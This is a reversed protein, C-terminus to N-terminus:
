KKVVKAKRKDISTKLEALKQPAVYVYEVLTVFFSDMDEVDQSTIEITFDHTGINGLIRIVDAMESMVDPIIKNKALDQVKEKLTKGKAGKEKCIGELSKRILGVFAIPSIKEVKKAELYCERIKKPVSNAVGKVSPHLVDSTSLSVGKKNFEWNSYLSVGECTRCKTLYYYNDISGLYEGEESFIDEPMSEQHLVIQLTKNGCHMCKIVEEKIKKIAM